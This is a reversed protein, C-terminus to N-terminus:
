LSSIQDTLMNKPHKKNTSLISCPLCKQFPTLACNCIKYFTRTTSLLIRRHNEWIISWCTPMYKNQTKFNHDLESTLLSLFFWPFSKFQMKNILFHNIKVTTKGGCQDFTYKTLIVNRSYKNCFLRQQGILLSM